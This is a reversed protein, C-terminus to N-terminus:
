PTHRSIIPGLWNSIRLPLKKWISIALSFKKNKPSANPIKGNPSLYYWYLQKEKGGWQKKFKYGGSDPDCRGFDFQEIGLACLREMSAWYLLMNVSAKRYKNLSAAWIIEATNETIITYSASVIKQNLYVLSILSEESFESFVDTFFQKGYVPTGLDRMHEAFVQYFSNIIEPTIEKGLFTKANAGSKQPRRIQSRLKKNFSNFLDESNKLLDLIFTVKHKKCTLEEVPDLHNNRSRIELYDYKNTLLFDELEKIAELSYLNTIFGGHNIYPISILAKGFLCSKVENMRLQNIIQSDKQCNLTLSSHGFSTQIIKQWKQGFVLSKKLDKASKQEDLINSTIAIQIQSTLQNKSQAIKKNPM